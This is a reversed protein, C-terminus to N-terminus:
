ARCSAITGGGQGLEEDALEILAYPHVTVLEAGVSITRLLGTAFVQADNLGDLCTVAVEGFHEHAAM